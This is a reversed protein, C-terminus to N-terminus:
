VKSKRKTESALLKKLRDVIEPAEKIEALPRLQKLIYPVKLRSGQRVIVGAIDVWDQPRSAFAKLVVLDEASCTRIRAEPSFEFVSSNRIVQAEYPLGALAIDASVGKATRLLLVRRSLAFALADPIRPQFHQLLSRAFSEDNEFGTLLTGDVDRTTREEGWRILALGGIFCFKWGRAEAFAQLEIAAEYLPNM